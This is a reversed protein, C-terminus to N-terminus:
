QFEVLKADRQSGDELTVTADTLKQEATEPQVGLIIRAGPLIRVFARASATVATARANDGTVAAAAGGLPAALLSLAILAAMAHAIRGADSKTFRGNVLTGSRSQLPPM